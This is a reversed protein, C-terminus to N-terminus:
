ADTFVSTFIGSGNWAILFNTGAGAVQLGDFDVTWLLPNLPTTPVTDFLVVDSASIGAGTAAWTTDAADFVVTGTTEVWTPSALVEGATAGDSQTYGNATTLEETVETRLTETALFAFTTPLLMHYMHAASDLHVAESAANVGILDAFQDYFKIEVAM